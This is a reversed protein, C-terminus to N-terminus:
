LGNVLMEVVTPRQIWDKPGIRVVPLRGAAIMADIWTIARNCVKAAQRKSLLVEDPGAFKDVRAEALVRMEYELKQVNLMHRKRRGGSSLHVPRTFHFPQKNEHYGHSLPKKQSWQQGYNEMTVWPLTKFFNHIKVLPKFLDSWQSGDINCNAKPHIIKNSPLRAQRVSGTRLRQTGSSSLGPVRSAM